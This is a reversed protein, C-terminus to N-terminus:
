AGPSIVAADSLRGQDPRGDVSLHDAIYDLRPQDDVEGNDVGMNYCAGNETIYCDPLEYRANVDHPHPRGAGASLSGLRYRDQRRQGAQRRVTAPFNPAKPRITRLRADAHLLQRGVLRTKQSIITM